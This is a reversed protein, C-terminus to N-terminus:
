NVLDVNVTEIGSHNSEFSFSGSLALLTLTTEIGSHNSEFELFCNLHICQLYTEIGSHNSEFLGPHQNAM